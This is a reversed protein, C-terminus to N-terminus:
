NNRNFKNEARKFGIIVDSGSWRAEAIYPVERVSSGNIKTRAELTNQVPNILGGSDFYPLRKNNILDMFGTGFFKVADARVVYEGNSVRALISDSKGSGPGSIKGGGAFKPLSSQLAAAFIRIGIGAAIAAGAPLKIDQFFKKAVGYQILASGMQKLGQAITSLFGGFLKGASGEGALAEGIADGIGSFADSITSSLSSSLTERLQELRQKTNEYFKDFPVTTLGDIMKNKIGVGVLFATKQMRDIDGENAFPNINLGLQVSEIQSKPAFQTKFAEEIRRQTEQNDFVIEFPLPLPIPNLRDNRVAAKIREEFNILNIQTELDLILPSTATLKFKDVLHKIASEIASIKDKSLNTNFILEEQNIVGIQRELKSLVDTITEIDRKVKAKPDKKDRKGFLIEELNLAGGAVLTLAEKSTKIDNTLGRIKDSIVKADHEFQEKPLEFVGGPGQFRTLQSLEVKLKILSQFQKEFNPLLAKIEASKFLNDNYDNLAASIQQYSSKEANLGDFYKPSIKILQDIIEQRDKLGTNSDSLANFLLNVETAEKAITESVKDVTELFRNYASRSLEISEKNKENEETADKTTRGFSMMGNQYILLASSVLSLALGIGGAGILSSGLAKLAAANSGTEARLRQFSELLPNLNNQIGIFGYPVDQAVRGLNQLAFGASNVGASSKQLTSDLKQAAMATRGLEAQTKKLEDRAGSTNGTIVIELPTSM